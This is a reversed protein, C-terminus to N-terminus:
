RLFLRWIGRRRTGMDRAYALLEEMTRLHEVVHSPGGEAGKGEALKAKVTIVREDHETAEPEQALQELTEIVQQDAIEHHLLCSCAAHRVRWSPDALLGRLVRIGSRSRRWLFVMAVQVRVDSDPDSATDIVTQLARRSGHTLKSICVARVRASEDNLAHDIIVEELRQDLVPGLGMAAAERLGPNDSELLRLLPETKAAESHWSLGFAAAAVTGPDHDSLRAILTEADDIPQSLLDHSPQNETM